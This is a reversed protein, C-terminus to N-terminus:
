TTAHICSGGRRLPAGQIRRPPEQRKGVLLAQAPVALGDGGVYPGSLLKQLGHEAAWPRQVLPSSMRQVRLPPPKPPPTGPYCAMGPSPM